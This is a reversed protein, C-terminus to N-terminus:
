KFYVKARGANESGAQIYTHSRFRAEFLRLILIKCNFSSRDLVLVPHSLAFRILPDVYEATVQKRFRRGVLTSFLIFKLPHQTKIHALPM